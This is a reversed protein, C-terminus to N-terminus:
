CPLPNRTPQQLIDLGVGTVLLDSGLQFSECFCIVVDLISGTCYSNSQCHGYTPHPILLHDELRGGSARRGGRGGGAVGQQRIM